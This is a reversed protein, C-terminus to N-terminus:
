EKLTSIGKTHAPWYPCHRCGSGCCWGRKKHYEETMVKKGDEYYFDPTSKEVIEKVYLQQIWDNKMNSLKVVMREVLSKVQYTLRM